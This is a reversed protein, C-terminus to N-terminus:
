SFMIPEFDDWHVIDVDKGLQAHVAHNLKQISEKEKEKREQSKEKEIEKRGRHTDPNLEGYAAKPFMKKFASWEGEHPGGKDFLHRIWVVFDHESKSPLGRYVYDSKKVDADIKKMFDFTKKSLEDLGFTQGNFDLSFLLKLDGESYDDVGLGRASDNFLQEAREAGNKGYMEKLFKQIDGNKEINVEQIREYYAKEPLFQFARWNQKIAKVVMDWSMKYDIPIFEFALGDSTIALFCLLHNMRKKPIHQLALGRWKVVKYAVSLDSQV